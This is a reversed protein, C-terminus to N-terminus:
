HWTGPGSASPSRPWWPTAARTSCRCAPTAATPFMSARATPICPSATPACGPRSSRSFWSSARTSSSSSAPTKPRWTPVSATRRFVSAARGRGVPIQAVQQRKGVDIIDLADGDEASVFVHKGDPSFVAHEPNKGRVKVVFARRNAATDIFAIDNSEEVAAVVWKGDPSIGVGEPSEGLDISDVQARGPLDIVLLRNNPQDSVYAIRGQAGIAIGRPKKGAAIEGVVTDSATDIVSLSGSGENPVYAFPASLVPVASLLLPLLFLWARCSSM